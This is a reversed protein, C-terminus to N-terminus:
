AHDRHAAASVPIAVIWDVVSARADFHQATVVSAHQCITAITALRMEDSWVEATPSDNTISKPLTMTATAGADFVGERPELGPTHQAIVSAAPPVQDGGDGCDGIKM